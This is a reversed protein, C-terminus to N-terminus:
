KTKNKLSLIYPRYERPLPELNSAPVDGKNTFRYNFKAMAGNYDSCLQNHVSIIGLLESRRQEIYFKTEKDTALMKGSSDYYEQLAETYIDVDARKKDIAASLDKFYEYKKLLASPAFEKQVTKISDNWINCTFAGVGVVIFVALFILFYKM